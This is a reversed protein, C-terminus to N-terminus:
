YPPPNRRNQRVPGILLAVIVVLVILVAIHYVVDGTRGSGITVTLGFTTLVLAFLSTGLALWRSGSWGAILSIAGIGLAVAIVAEPIAAGPFPDALTVPGLAITVGFHVLSALAFAVCTVALLGRAAIAEPSGKGEIRQSPVM